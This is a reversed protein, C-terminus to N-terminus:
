AVHQAPLIGNAPDRLVAAIAACQADATSAASYAAVCADMLGAKGIVTRKFTDTYPNALADERVNTPDRVVLGDSTTNTIRLTTRSYARKREEKETLAPTFSSKNPLLLVTVMLPDDGDEDPHTFSVVEVRTVNPIAVSDLRYDSRAM